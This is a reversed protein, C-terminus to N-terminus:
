QEMRTALEARRSEQVDGVSEAFRQVFRRVRTPTAIVELERHMSGYEIHLRTKKCVAYWALIVVSVAVLAGAFGRAIPEDILALAAGPVTILLFVLTMRGAPVRRHMTLRYVSRFPVRWVRSSGGRSELVILAEDDLVLGQRVILSATTLDAPM